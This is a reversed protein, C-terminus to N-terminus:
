APPYTVPKVSLAHNNLGLTEQAQQLAQEAQVRQSAEQELQRHTRRIKQENHLLNQYQRHLIHDAHRVIMFLIGYLLLFSLLLVKTLKTQFEEIQAMQLTVDTDLHFVAILDSAAAEVPVYTEIIDRRVLEGTEDAFQDDRSLRSSARIDRRASIFGNQSSQDTGIQGHQSSLLTIGNRDYINIESISLSATLQDLDDSLADPSKLDSNLRGAFSQVLATNQKRTLEILQNVAM